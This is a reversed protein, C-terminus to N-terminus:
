SMAALGENEVYDPNIFAIKAKLIGAIRTKSLHRQVSVMQVVEVALWM